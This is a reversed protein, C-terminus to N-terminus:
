FLIIDLDCFNEGKTEELLKITKHNVNLARIWKSKIKTYIILYTNLTMEKCIAIQQSQVVEM